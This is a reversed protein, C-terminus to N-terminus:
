FFKKSDTPYSCQLAARAPGIFNRPPKRESMGFSMLIHGGLTGAWRVEEGNGAVIPHSDSRSQMILRASTWNASVKPAGM